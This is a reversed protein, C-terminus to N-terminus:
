IGAVKRAVIGSLSPSVYIGGIQQAGRLGAIAPTQAPAAVQPPFQGTLWLAGVSIAGVTAGSVLGASWRGMKRVERFYSYAGFQMMTAIGSALIVLGAFTAKGM